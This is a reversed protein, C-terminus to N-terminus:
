PRVSVVYPGPDLLGFTNRDSVQVVSAVYASARTVDPVNITALAGSAVNGLVMIHTGEGDVNSAVQYGAPAAVATVPGGSVVLVIAGAGGGGATLALTLTGANSGPGQDTSCGAILCAAILFSRKM